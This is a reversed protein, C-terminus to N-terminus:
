SSGKQNQFGCEEKCGRESVVRLSEGEGVFGCRGRGSVDRMTEGEGVFGYREKESV